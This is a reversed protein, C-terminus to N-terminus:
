PQIKIGLRMGAAVVEPGLRGRLDAPTEASEELAEGPDHARLHQDRGDVGQERGDEQGGSPYGVRGQEGDGSKEAAQQGDDAVEDAVREDSADRERYFRFQGDDGEAEEDGDVLKFVEQVALDDTVADFVRHPEGQQGQHETLPKHSDGAHDEGWDDQM